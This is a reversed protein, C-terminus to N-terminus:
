RTGDVALMALARTLRQLAAFRRDRSRRFKTAREEADALGATVRDAESWAYREAMLDIATRLRDAEYERVLRAVLDPSGSAPWPELQDHYVTRTAEDIDNGPAPSLTVVGARDVDLVLWPKRTKPDQIVDATYRVTDGAEPIYERAPKAALDDASM